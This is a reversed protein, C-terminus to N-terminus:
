GCPQQQVIVSVTGPGIFSKKDTIIYNINHAGLGFDVTRTLKNSREPLLRFRGQGNENSSMGWFFNVQDNDKDTATVTLELNDGPNLCLPGSGISTPRTPGKAIINLNKLEPPSNDPFIILLKNIAALLQTPIGTIALDSLDPLSLNDMNINASESAGINVNASTNALPTADNKFVSVRVSADGTAVDTLDLEQGNFMKYIPPGSKPKIEATAVEGGAPYNTLVLKLNSLLSKLVMTLKTVEGSKISTQASAEAVTKKDSNLAQVDIKINGVALEKIQVPDNAQARTITQTIPEVGPSNLYTIKISISQTSAPIAKISFGSAQPFKINFGLYGTQNNIAGPLSCSVASLSLGMLFLMKINRLGFLSNKPTKSKIKM